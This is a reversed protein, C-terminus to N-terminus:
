RPRRMFIMGDNSGLVYSNIIVFVEEEGGLIISVLYDDKSYEGLAVESGYQYFVVEGGERFRLALAQRDGDQFYLEGLTLELALAGELAYMDGTEVDELMTVNTVLLTM